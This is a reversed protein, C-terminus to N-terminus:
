VRFVVQLYVGEGGEVAHARVQRTTRSLPLWGLALCRGREVGLHPLLRLLCLLPLLASLNLLYLAAGRAGRFKQDAWGGWVAATASRGRWGCCHTSCGTSGLAVQGKGAQSGM